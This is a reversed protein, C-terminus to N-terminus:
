SVTGTVLLYFYHVSVTERVQYHRSRYKANQLHMCQEILQGSIPTIHTWGGLNSCIAISHGHYLKILKM